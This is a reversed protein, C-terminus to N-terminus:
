IIDRMGIGLADAIKELSSIRIDRNRFRFYQYVGSENIGTLKALRYRSIKKEKMIGELKKWNVM